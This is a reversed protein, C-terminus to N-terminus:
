RGSQIKLDVGVGSAVLSARVHIVKGVAVEDDHPLGHARVPVARRNRGPAEGGVARRMPRLKQHVAVRRPELAERAHGRIRRVAEGDDPFGAVERGHAHEGLAEIRGPLRGARLDDDVRDGTVLERRRVDLVVGGAVERDHPASRCGTIGLADDERAVEIRTPSRESALYL